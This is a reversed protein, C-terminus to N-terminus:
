KVQTTILQGDYLTQFGDTILQDGEKLGSLVELDNDNLQGIVIPRKHARLKGNENVAVMVFKGKEDNQLTNMPITITNSAAYDQIKVVAIQNPKLDKSSPLRVEVYFARSLPDIQKGAVTVKAKITKNVDPLYVDVLNGVNVKTLYNEPVQAVAKLQSNNVIRIQPGAANAGVFMEGVRINVVDAVGSNPATVTFLSIQKQLTAINKELGEVQTRASILEVESGIGQKWLNQRRTYIDRATALQVKLPEIQQRLTMPDLQLLTQGKNVFQGQKVYVATVVGGQGNPPAVYSINDADIKGQLDIEHKFNGTTIGAITVLKAKEVKALSPDLKIIEAELKAIDKDIAEQDKKLKEIKSQKEKVQKQVDTKSECSVIIVAATLITFLKTILQM